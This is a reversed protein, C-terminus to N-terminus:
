TMQRVFEEAEEGSACEAIVECDEVVLWVTALYDECMRFEGEVETPCYPEIRM